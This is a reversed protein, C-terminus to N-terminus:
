KVSFTLKTDRIMIDTPEHDYWSIELRVHTHEKRECSISFKQWDSSIQFKESRVSNKIEYKSSGLPFTELICLDIQRGVNERSKIFVEFKVNLKAWDKAWMMLLDYYISPVEQTKDTDNAAIYISSSYDKNLEFYSTKNQCKKRWGLYDPLPLKEKWEVEPLPLQIQSFDIYTNSILLDQENNDGWYIEFRLITEDRIKVYEVSKTEWSENIIWKNEIPTRQVLEGKIKDIEFIVLEITRNKMISKLTVDFKVKSTAPIDNIDKSISPYDIVGDKNNVALVRRSDEIDVIKHQSCRDFNFNSYPPVEDLTKFKFHGNLNILQKYRNYELTKRFEVIEKYLSGSLPSDMYSDSNSNYSKLFVHLFYRYHKELLYELERIIFRDYTHLEFRISLESYISLQLCVSSILLPHIKECYYEIDSDCFGAFEERDKGVNSILTQLHSVANEKDKVTHESEMYDFIPDSFDNAYWRLHGIFKDLSNQLIFGELQNRLDSIAKLIKSTIEKTQINKARNEMIISVIVKAAEIYPNM